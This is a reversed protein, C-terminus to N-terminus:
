TLRKLTLRTQTVIARSAFHLLTQKCLLFIREDDAFILSFAAKGFFLCQGNADFRRKAFSNSDSL